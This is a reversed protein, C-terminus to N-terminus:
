REIFLGGRAFDENAPNLPEGDYGSAEDVLYSRHLYQSTTIAEELTSILPGARDVLQPLAANDGASVAELIEDRVTALHAAAKTVDFIADVRDVSIETQGLARAHALEESLDPWHRSTYLPNSMAHYWAETRAISSSVANHLKWVFLRLSGPTDASITDLRDDLSIDFIAKDPKQGLLLFEVPYFQTEGNRVVFRNLHYRCYPCPYMTAFARFFTKFAAIAQSKQAPAMAEILEASSHLFAWVAPGIYYPFSLRMDAAEVDARGLYSDIFAVYQSLAGTERGFEERERRKQVGTLYPGTLQWAQKLAQQVKPTCQAFGDRIDTAYRDFEGRAATEAHWAALSLADEAELADVDADRRVSACRLLRPMFSEYWFRVPMISGDLRPGDADVIIPQWSELWAATDGNVGASPHHGDETALELHRLRNLEHQTLLETRMEDPPIGHQQMVLAMELAEALHRREDIEEARFAAIAREAAAMQPTLTVDRWHTIRHDLDSCAANIDDVLLQFEARAKDGQVLGLALYLEVLAEAFVRFDRITYPLDRARLHTESNASYNDRFSRYAAGQLLRFFGTQLQLPSIPRFGARADRGLALPRDSVARAVAPMDSADASVAAGLRHPAVSTARYGSPVVGGTGFVHEIDSLDVVTDGNRDLESVLTEADPVGLLALRRTLLDTAVMDAGDALYHFAHGRRLSADGFLAVARDRFAKLSIEEPRVPNGFAMRLESVSVSTGGQLLLDRLVMIARQDLNGSCTECWDRFLRDADALTELKPM